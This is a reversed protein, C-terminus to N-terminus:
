PKLARQVSLILLFVPVISIGGPSKRIIKPSFNSRLGARRCMACRSGNGSLASTMWTCRLLRSPRWRWM